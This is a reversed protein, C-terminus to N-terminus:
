RIVVKQTGRRERDSWRLIYIGPKLFRLDVQIKRASGQDGVGTKRGGDRYVVKGLLDLVEVSVDGAAEKMMLTFLGDSPNPYLYVGDNNREEIGLCAGFSFVLNISASDTCGNENTVTVTYSQMEFGIGTSSATLTRSELGTSWEYTSGPNGADLVITDYICVTSDIPGLLITPLPYVLVVTNGTATNFSDSLTLHYTTTETPTVEPNPDTSTFGPPSSSWSYTYFGSGGGALAYLQTPTGLCVAPPNAIPNASLPGGEIMVIMEDQGSVCGSAADTVELLYMTSSYVNGTNPNQQSSTFGPPNSTWSYDYTGYGGSANGNLTTSTGNPIAVDPGADAVPTPHVVVMSTDYIKNRCLDEITAICTNNGVPLIVDVISDAAATVNWHYSRPLYGDSVLAKLRVENGHCVVTDPQEAILSMPIYDLINVTDATVSGDCSIQDITIIVTEPGEPVLDVLPHIVLAISDVGQPFTIFDPIATYDVGNTATGTVDFNVTYAFDPPKSLKFNVTVDNCGEVATNGIAPNNNTPELNVGISSFSNKELFVGSDFVHDVADGVALKIHYTSCPQVVVTATFVHTLADYQFWQGGANDWRSFLNDCINDITVYLNSSGPMIAINVANNTFTGNIGPGSVFFGFADNYSYCYEFFEESGFVYRFRVTDYQPIFDFELVAKDFTATGSITTLDPDGSGGTGAGAGASNNPGIAISAKGSTMLIGGTLDLQQTAISDTEFTGIQNSTILGSSGNYTVNTVTIGAGVLYNQVLQEPTMNMASGEVVTLQARAIVPVLLIIFLLCIVGRRGTINNVFCM